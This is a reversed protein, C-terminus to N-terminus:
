LDIAANITDLVDGERRVVMVGELVTGALELASRMTELTELVARIDTEIPMRGAGQYGYKDQAKDGADLWNTLRAVSKNISM